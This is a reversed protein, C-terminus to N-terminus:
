RTPGNSTVLTSRVENRLATDHLGVDETVLRLNRVKATAIIWRDGLGVGKGSSRSIEAYAAVLEDGALPVMEWADGVSQTRARAEQQAETAVAVAHALEGRTIVSVMFADDAATEAILSALSPEQDDREMMGIIASTDVLYIASM